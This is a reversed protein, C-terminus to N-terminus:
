NRILIYNIPIQFTIRDQTCRRRSRRCNRTASPASPPWTSGNRAPGPCSRVAEVRGSRAVTLEITVTGDEGAELAQRPYYRHSLWYALLGRNWDASANAARIQAYPDTRNPGERPPGLSLDIARSRSGRAEPRPARRASASTWRPASRAPRPARSRGPRPPVRPLPPPPPQPM